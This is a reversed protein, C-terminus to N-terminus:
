FCLDVMSEAKASGPPSGMAESKGLFSVWYNVRSFPSVLCVSYFPHMGGTSVPCLGTISEDLPLIRGM